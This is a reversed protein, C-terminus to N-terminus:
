AAFAAAWTGERRSASPSRSGRGAASRPARPCAASARPRAGAAPTAAGTARQLQVLAEDAEGAAGAVPEAHVPRVVSRLEGRREPAVAEVDLELPRVLAAVRAAERPQALEGAVEADRGDRGAVDMRVVRAAGRELVREDRDAAAGREVAALRLPAAVVLRHQERRVGHEVAEGVVPIGDEARGLEGGTEGKVQRLLEAVAVRVEGVPELRGVALESGDTLLCKGLPVRSVALRPLPEVLLERQDGLQLEGPEEQEM